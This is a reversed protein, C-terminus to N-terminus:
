PRDSPLDAPALQGNRLTVTPCFRGIYTRRWWAGAGLETFEYRYLSSRVYTPPEDGFPDRALLARVDPAGALLQYLFQHFWAANRCGRLAAFWMQWDLRPMHPGTFRPRRDVDTPKFPFEYIEWTAGDRSGEVVIEPRELTMDQFLGYGNISLFGGTHELISAGLDSPRNLRRNIQLASILLVVAALAWLARRAPRPMARAAPERPDPARDRWRKPVLRRLAQDDFLMVAIAVTTLHFFGYNGSLGIAVMLGITGLGFLIRLRRPGLVFLPLALEVVLMLVLATALVWHPLHHIYYATWTPIPQTYFHHDLATLDTWAGNQAQLKVFGSMFMLKFALLRVLWVGALPPEADSRLRPRLRWPAVFLAVLLTELLLTDWQYSFFIGGVSVLSLYVAWLALVAPGPLVDAILLLSLAIGALALAHLFGDSASLWALTPVYLFRRVPGIDEAATAQEVYALQEAAPQIGGSGFLGDMQAYMSVFAALAALGVLRLFLWRTLRYQAPMLHPGYLRRAWRSMLPRHGAVWRYARESAPAFLPAYRYLRLGWPNGGYALARFVAEAGVYVAGDTEILHVSRGFLERPIDPFREAVDQYPARDLADGALFGIREQSRRCFGCEGDWVLLAKAPPHLTVHRFAEAM